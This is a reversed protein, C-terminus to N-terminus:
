GAGLGVRALMVLGSGALAAAAAVNVMGLMRHDLRARLLAAAGSLCLWWAASGAFLGALLWAADGRAPVAPGTFATVSAALLVVLLPNCLNFAVATGYAGLLSRAPAQGRALRVLPRRLVRWAFVLMLVGALMGLTREHGDLWPGAQGMGGLLLACYLAQVTSAGAGTSLGAAMGGTLTRSICLVGMPGVPVAVSAGIMAGALVFAGNGM